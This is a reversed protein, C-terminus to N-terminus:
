RFKVLACAQNILCKDKVGIFDAISYVSYRSQIDTTLHKYSIILSHQIHFKLFEVISKNYESYLMEWHAEPEYYGRSEARRMLSAVVEPMDRRIFIFRTDAPLYPAIIPITIATRPDKFGWLPSISKREVLREIQTNFEWRANALRTPAPLRYWSAGCHKLISQNLDRWDLDEYYGTSNHADPPRFREGMNVGLTHLIASVLSTGSRHMGLVLICTSPLDIPM